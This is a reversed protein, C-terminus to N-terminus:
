LVKPGKFYNDKKHQTNKLADEVSLCEEEKDERLVNKIEIPQFSPKANKTDVKEISSFADLIEKLEPLFEKIEATSLELKANSAVGLITDKDVKM